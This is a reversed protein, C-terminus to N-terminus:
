NWNSCFFFLKSVIYECIIVIAQELGSSPNGNVYTMTKTNKQKLYSNITANNTFKSTFIIVPCDLNIGSYWWYIFHGFHTM